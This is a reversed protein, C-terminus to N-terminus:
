TKIYTDKEKKKQVGFINPQDRQFVTFCICVKEVILKKTAFSIQLNNRGDHIKQKINLM